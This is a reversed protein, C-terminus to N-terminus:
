PGSFGIALGGPARVIATTVGEMVRIPALMEEAGAEVAQDFAAQCDEVHVYPVSGPVSASAMEVATPPEGSPISSATWQSRTMDGASTTASTPQSGVMRLPPPGFTWARWRLMSAAM